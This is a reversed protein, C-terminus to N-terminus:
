AGGSSVRSSLQPPPGTTWAHWAWEGPINGAPLGAAVTWEVLFFAAVTGM